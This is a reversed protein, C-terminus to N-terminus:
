TQQFNPSQDLAWAFSATVVGGVGQINFFYGQGTICGLPLAAPAIVAKIGLALVADTKVRQVGLVLEAGGGGQIDCLRLGLRDHGSFIIVWFPQQIQVVDNDAPLVVLGGQLELVTQVAEQRQAQCGEQEARGGSKIRCAVQQVDGQSAGIPLAVLGAELQDVIIQELQHRRCRPLRLYWCPTTLIPFLKPEFEVFSHSM